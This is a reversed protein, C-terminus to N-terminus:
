GVVVAMDGFTEYVAEFGSRSLRIRGSWPDNLFVTSPTVGIVLVAHETLAYRVETGDWALWTDLQAPRYDSTVWAVAPHGGLVASYVEAPSIGAGYALVTAGAQAAARAIPAAYVGYGTRDSIHGAPDGVFITNPNGWRAITGGPGLEAPRVDVGTLALLSAEDAAVGRYRLAMKLSAVECTVPQDQVDVPIDLLAAAPAPLTAPRTWSGQEMGRPQLGLVSASAIWGRGDALHFWDGSWWEIRGTTADAQPADDPRRVWGDFTDVQGTPDVDVAPMDMGPGFRVVAGPVAAVVATFEAAAAPPRAASSPSTAPAPPSVAPEAAPPPAAGGCASLAVLAALVLARRLARMRRGRAISEAAEVNGV